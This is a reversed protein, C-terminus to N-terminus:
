RWRELFSGVQQKTRKERQADQLLQPHPPHARACGAPIATLTEKDRVGHFVHVPFCPSLNEGPARYFSLLFHAWHTEPGGPDETRHSGTWEM